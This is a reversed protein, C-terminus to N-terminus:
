SVPDPHWRPSHACSPLPSHRAVAPKARDQLADIPATVLAVALKPTFKRQTEARQEDIMHLSIGVSRWRLQPQPDRLTNCGNRVREEVIAHAPERQFIPERAAHASRDGAEATASALRATGTPVCRDCHVRTSLLDELARGCHDSRLPDFHAELHIEGCGPAADASAARPLQEAFLQRGDRLIREHPRGRSRSAVEDFGDFILLVKARTERAAAQDREDAVPRPQRSLATHAVPRQLALADHRETRGCRQADVEVQQM